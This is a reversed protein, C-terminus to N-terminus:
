KPIIESIGLDMQAKEHSKQFEDCINAARPLWLKWQQPSLNSVFNFTWALISRELGVLYSSM